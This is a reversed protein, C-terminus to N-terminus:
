SVSQIKLINELGAEAKFSKMVTEKTIGALSLGQFFPANVREFAAYITKIESPFLDAMIKKYSIGFCRECSPSLVDKLSKQQKYKVTYRRKEEIDVKVRGEAVSVLSQDVGVVEVSILNEDIKVFNKDLEIDTTKEIIEGDIKEILESIEPVRLETIKIEFSDEGEGIIITEVNGRM